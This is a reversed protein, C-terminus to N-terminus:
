GLCTRTRWGPPSCARSRQARATAWSASSTSRNGTGTTALSGVRSADELRHLLGDDTPNDLRDRLSALNRLVSDRAAALEALVEAVDDTHAQAVHAARLRDLARLVWLYALYDERRTFGFLRFRDSVALADLNFPDAQDDPIAMVVLRERDVHGDPCENELSPVRGRTGGAAGAIRREARQATEGM